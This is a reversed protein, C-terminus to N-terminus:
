NLLPNSLHLYKSAHISSHNLPHLRFIILHISQCIFIYVNSPHISIHILQSLSLCVAVQIYRWNLALLANNCSLSTWNLVLLASNSYLTLPLLARRTRLLVDKIQLLARRARLQRYVSVSASLHFYLVFPKISLCIFPYNFSIQSDVWKTSRRSSQHTMSRLRVGPIRQPGKTLFFLIYIIM